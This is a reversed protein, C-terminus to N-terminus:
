KEAQAQILLSVIESFHFKKALDLATFGDGDELYLKVKKEILFKVVGIRGHSAACYQYRSGCDKCDFESKEHNAALHLPTQGFINQINLPAGKEIGQNAAYHLPSYDFNTLANVKAGSELLLKTIEFWGFNVAYHLPTQWSNTVAKVDAGEEILFKIREFNGQITAIHLLTEGEQNKIRSSESFKQEVFEKKTETDFTTNKMGIDEWDM